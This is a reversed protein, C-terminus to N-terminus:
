DYDITRCGAAQGVVVCMHVNPMYLPWLCEIRASQHYLRGCATELVTSLVVFGALVGISKRVFRGQEQGQSSRKSPRTISRTPAEAVRHHQARYSYDKDQWISPAEEQPLKSTDLMSVGM